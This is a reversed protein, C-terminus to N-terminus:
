RAGDLAARGGRGQARPPAAARRPWLAWLWLPAFMAVESLMVAMGRPSLLGKGIPAVPLPRWPAFYRADSFPWFLAIGLGGNTLIDLLAHSAVVAAALLAVKWFRQRLGLGILGAVIGIAVAMLLSHTAGRHGWQARYAVGYRFGIFDLDPLCSLISFAAMAALSRRGEREYLRGAALGVALHGISAM